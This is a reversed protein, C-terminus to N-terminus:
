KKILKEQKLFEKLKKILVEAHIEAEAKVQEKTYDDLGKLRLEELEKQRQKEIEKRKKLREEELVKEREKERQERKDEWEKEQEKDFAEYTKFTDPLDNIKNIMEDKNIVPCFKIFFALQEEIIKIIKQKNPKYNIDDVRIFLDSNEFRKASWEHYKNDDYDKFFDFIYSLNNTHGGFQIYKLCIGNCTNKDECWFTSIFNGIETEEDNIILKKGSWHSGLSLLEYLNSNPEDFFVHFFGNEEKTNCKKVIDMALKKKSSLPREPFIYEIKM